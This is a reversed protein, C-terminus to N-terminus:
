PSRHEHWASAHVVVNTTVVTIKLACSGDYSPSLFKLRIIRRETAAVAVAVSFALNWDARSRDDRIRTYVKTSVDLRLCNM